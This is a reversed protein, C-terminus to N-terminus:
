LPSRLGTSGTAGTSGTGGSGGGGTGGGSGAAGTPGTPGLISLMLANNASEFVPGGNTQVRVAITDSRIQGLNTTAVAIVNFSDGLTGGTTNFYASKQEPYLGTNTITMTGYDVTYAVGIVVEGERLWARYDISRRISENVSQVITGLIM